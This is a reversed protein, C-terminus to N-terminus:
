LNALADLALLKEKAKSEDLPLGSIRILFVFDGKRVYLTAGSTEVYVADDGLGSVPTKVIKGIPTKATNFRDVPTLKGMPGLIEVLVTKARAGPEGFQCDHPGLAKGSGIGFGLATSVQASTILSCADKPPAANVVPANWLAIAVFVGCVPVTCSKSVM